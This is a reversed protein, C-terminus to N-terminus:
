LIVQKAKNVKDFPLYISGTKTTLTLGDAAVAAIHGQYEIRDGVPQRLFVRIEKGIKRGFDQPTVLPRDLGPSSVELTYRDAVLDKEELLAGLERNLVACEDLNIGGQARDALIELILAGGQARYFRMDVLVYGSRELHQACLPRTRLLLEDRL